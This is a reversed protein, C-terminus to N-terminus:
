PLIGKVTKNLKDLAGRASLNIQGGGGDYQSASQLHPSANPQPTETKSSNNGTFNPGTGKSPQATTIPASAKAHSPSLKSSPKPSLKSQTQSKSSISSKGSTVNSSTGISSDETKQPHVMVLAFCFIVTLLIPLGVVGTHGPHFQRTTGTM